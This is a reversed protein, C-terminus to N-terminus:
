RANKEKKRKGIMEKLLIELTAVKKKESAHQTGLTAM